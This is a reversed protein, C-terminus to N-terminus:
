TELPCGVVNGRTLLSYFTELPCLIFELWTMLDKNSRSNAGVVDSLGLLYCFTELPCLICELWTTLDGVSRINAGVM